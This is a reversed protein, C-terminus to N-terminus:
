VLQINPVKVAIVSEDIHAHPIRFFIWEWYNLFHRFNLVPNAFRTVVNPEMPFALQLGISCLCRLRDPLM